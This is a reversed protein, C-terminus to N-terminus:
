LFGSSFGVRSFFGYSLMCSEYDLRTSELDLRASELDRISDGGLYDRALGFYELNMAGVYSISCCAWVSLAM